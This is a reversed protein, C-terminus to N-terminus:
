IKRDKKNIIAKLIPILINAILVTGAEWYEKSMILAIFNEVDKIDIQIGFKMLVIGLIINAIAVWFNVSDVFAWIKKPNLKLQNIWHVFVNLLNVLIYIGLAIFQKDSLNQVITGAVEDPSGPLALGSFTFALLIASIIQAWLNKIKM